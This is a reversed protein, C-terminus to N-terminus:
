RAGAVPEGARWAAGERVELRYTAQPDASITTELYGEADTRRVGFTALARWRGDSEPPSAVALRVDRPGRGARVHAWVSLARPGVRRLALSYAFARRAPKPRGDPFRLGSQFDGWRARATPGPREPLDRLLFQSFSRVREDALAQREAEPLWRAQLEPTVRQTPDPPDTQYGYETVWLGLRRETRGRRSLRDLLDTMRRLDGLRVNDPQPDRRWPPLNLSYPHHAWGDGPLPEFDRCEPTTLPRLARDVCALDRLFELPPVGDTSRGPDAAGLAATNGILVLAGPAAARIRPAAARLMARYQRPSDAAWGDQQPEGGREVRRWQPLLFIPYNPENWVSFAVAAPLGERGSYRRAVAAAFAAYQGPDIGDRQRDPPTSPRAVAWRPAWFAIDVLVRMGAADVLRVARDLSAWAGPSYAAPDEADFDPRTPSAPDPATVSWAATIRVWDVGIAALEEVTARTEAESRHLLLADDQVVTPRTVPLAPAPPAEDEGGRLVLGAAVALVAAAVAILAAIWRTRARM